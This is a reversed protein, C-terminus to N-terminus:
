MMNDHLYHESGSAFAATTDNLQVVSLFSPHEHLSIPKWFTHNQCLISFKQGM